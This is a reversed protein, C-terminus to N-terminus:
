HVPWEDVVIGLDNLAQITAEVNRRIQPRQRKDTTSGEAVAIVRGYPWANAPLDTLAEPLDATRIELEQRRASAPRLMGGQGVQSPNADPMTVRMKITSIGVSLFPNEWTDTSRVDVYLSKTPPPIKELQERDKERGQASAKRQQQTAQGTAPPSQTSSSPSCGLAFCLAAMGLLSFPHSFRTVLSLM